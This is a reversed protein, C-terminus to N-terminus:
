NTKSAKKRSVFVGIGVAMLVAIVALGGWLSSSGATTPTQPVATSAPNAISPSQPGSSDSPPPKTPAGQAPPPPPPVTLENVPRGLAQWVQEKLRRLTLPSATGPGTPYESVRFVPRDGFAGVRYLGQRIGIAVHDGAPSLRCFVVIQEGATLTYDQGAIETYKDGLHGGAKWVVIPGSVTGKWVDSISVTYNTRIIGTREDRRPEISQVTAVGIVEAKSVMEEVPVVRGRSQPVSAVFSSSSLVVLFLAVV